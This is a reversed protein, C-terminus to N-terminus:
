VSTTIEPWFPPWSALTERIRKSQGEIAGRPVGHINRRACDDLDVCMVRVTVTAGYAQGVAVYPALEAISTNTNDIVVDDGRQLAEIARRFCAGHALGLEAPDFLYEGDRVFWDDASCKVAGPLERAAYTTKGSGSVGVLITMKM